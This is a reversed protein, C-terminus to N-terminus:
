LLLPSTNKTQCPVLTASFPSKPEIDLPNQRLSKSFKIEAIPSRGRAACSSAKCLCRTIRGVHSSLHFSPNLFGSKVCKISWNVQIPCSQKAETEQWTGEDKAAPAPFLTSKDMQPQTLAAFPLTEPHPLSRAPSLLACHLM